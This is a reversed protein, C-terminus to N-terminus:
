ILKELVWFNFSDLSERRACDLIELLPWTHIGILNVMGVCLLQLSKLYIMPQLLRM